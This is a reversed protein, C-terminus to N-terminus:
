DVPTDDRPPLPPSYVILVELPVDGTNVVEHDLGPPIRVVTGPGCAEAPADGLAVEGTGSLVYVVQHERVHHHRDARGGPAVTGHVLEFGGGFGADVLRVNVTAAHGPPGYRPLSERHEIPPRSTM